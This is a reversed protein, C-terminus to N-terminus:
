DQRVESGGPRTASDSDSDHNPPFYGDIALQKEIAEIIYSQRTKGTQKAAEIVRQNLRNEKRSNIKIQEYVDKNYQVNYAKKKENYM